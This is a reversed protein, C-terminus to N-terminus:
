LKGFRQRLFDIVGRLIFFNKKVKNKEFLVIMLWEYLFKYMELFITKPSSFIYHFALDFRNRTMYYRRVPSHNTYYFKHGFLRSSSISGLNHLLISNEVVVVAYKNMKLRLCYEHDVCDIFYKELFGGIKEFVPLFILNGSTMVTDVQIYNYNLNDLNYNRRSKLHSNMNTTIHLPSIMGFRHRDKLSKIFSILTEIAGVDFKSDQDMTLLWTAGRSIARGAGINLAVAVGANIGNDIYVINNCNMVKDILWVNKRESNDVVYLFDLFSSYTQINDLVSDDPNYLVVVGDLKLM